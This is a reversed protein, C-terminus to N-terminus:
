ANIIDVKMEKKRKAEQEKVASSGFLIRNDEYDEFIEDDDDEVENDNKDDM